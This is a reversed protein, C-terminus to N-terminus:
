LREATDAPNKCHIICGRTAHFHVLSQRTKVVEGVRRGVEKRNPCRRPPSRWHWHTEHMNMDDEVWVIEVVVDVHKQMTARRQYAQVSRVQDLRWFLAIVADKCRSPSDVRCGRSLKWVSQTLTQGLDLSLISSSIECLPPLLCSSM